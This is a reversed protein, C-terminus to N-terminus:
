WPLDDSDPDEVRVRRGRWRYGDSDYWVEDDSDDSNGGKAIEAMEGRMETMERRMETMGSHIEKLGESMEVMEETGRGQEESKKGRDIWAQRVKNGLDQSKGISSSLLIVVAVGAFVYSGFDSVTASLVNLFVSTPWIYNSAVALLLMGLFMAILLPYALHFRDARESPMAIFERKDKEQPNDASMPAEKLSTGLKAPHTSYQAHILLVQEDRDQESSVM